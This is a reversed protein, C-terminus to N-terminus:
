EDWLRRDHKLILEAAQIEARISESKADTGQGELEMTHRVPERLKRALALSRKKLMEELSEEPVLAYVLRCGLAKAANDLTNLSITGKAESNELAIVSPQKISLREALQRSTMQLAHRVESLWGRRPREINLERVALGIRDIQERRLRLTTTRSIM